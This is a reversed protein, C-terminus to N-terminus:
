ADEWAALIAELEDSLRRMLLIPEDADIGGAAAVDLVDQRASVLTTSRLDHIRKAAIAIRGAKARINRQVGVLYGAPTSGNEFADFAGDMSFGDEGQDGDLNGDEDKGIDHGKALRETEAIWNEWATPQFSASEAAAFELHNTTM